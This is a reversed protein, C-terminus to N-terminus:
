GSAWDQVAALRERIDLVAALLEDLKAPDGAPAAPGGPMGALLNPGGGDGSSDATM